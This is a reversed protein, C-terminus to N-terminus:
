VTREVKFTSFEGSGEFWEPHLTEVFGGRPGPNLLDLLNDLASRDGEALVEVNGDWTNRVWGKLELRMAHELVFARFGVGQVRGKILVHLRSLTKESM